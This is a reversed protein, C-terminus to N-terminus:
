RSTKSSAQRTGNLRWHYKQYSVKFAEQQLLDAAKEEKVYPALYAQLSGAAEVFDEEFWKFISSIAAERRAIDFQNRQPDNIFQVAAAELQEDLKLLTYAESQLVPCSHSACVIAFHIRPEKLPRILEHELAYLTIEEGAVLYKDRKFYVFRGLLSAPSSGDLIGKAALINYANIYFVLKEQRNMAATNTAGVQNVLTDFDANEHWRAYDVKGDTVAEALLADWTKIDLDAAVPLSVLLLTLLATPLVTFRHPLNRM